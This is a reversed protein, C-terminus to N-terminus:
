FKNFLIISVRLIKHISYTKLSRKTSKSTLRQTKSKSKSINLRKLLYSNKTIKSIKIITKGM